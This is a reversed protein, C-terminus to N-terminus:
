LMYWSSFPSIQQKAIEILPAVKSRSVCFCIDRNFKLIRMLFQEGFISDEFFSCFHSLNSYSVLFKFLGNKVAKSSLSYKKISFTLSVIMQWWIVYYYSSFFPSSYITAAQYLDYFLSSLIQKLIREAWLTAFLSFRISQKAQPQAPLRLYLRQYHKHVFLCSYLLPNYYLLKAICIWRKFLVIHCDPNSRM